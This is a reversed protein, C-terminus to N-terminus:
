SKEMIKEGLGQAYVYITAMAPLVVKLYINIAHNKLKIIKCFYRHIHLVKKFFISASYINVLIRCFNKFM